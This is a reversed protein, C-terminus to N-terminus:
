REYYRFLNSPVSDIKAIVDSVPAQFGNLSNADAGNWGSTEDRVHGPCM